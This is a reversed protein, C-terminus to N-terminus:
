PTDKPQRELNITAFPNSSPNYMELLIREGQNSITGSYWYYVDPSQLKFRLPSTMRIRPVINTLERNLVKGADVSFTSLVYCCAEDRLGEPFVMYFNENSAYNPHNFKGKYVARYLRLVSLFPAHMLKNQIVRDADGRTKSTILVNIHDSDRKPSGKPKYCTRIHSDDTMLESWRDSLSEAMAHIVIVPLPEVLEFYLM